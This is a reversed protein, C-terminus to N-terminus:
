DLTPRDMVQHAALRDTDALEHLSPGGGPRPTQSIM